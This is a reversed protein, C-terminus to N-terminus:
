LKEANSKIIDVVRIFNDLESETLGVQMEKMMDIALLEYVKILKEGSKTVMLCNKRRDNKDVVRRILNKKELSDILRLISSKDKGFWDAMDQQTVDEEKLSIAHLLGYQEHTLKIEEENQENIRNKFVRLVERLLRGIEMLALSQNEKLNQSEM